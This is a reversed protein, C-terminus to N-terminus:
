PNGPVEGPAPEKAKAMGAHVLVAYYATGLEAMTMPIDAIADATMKPNVKRLAEALTDLMRKGQSRAFADDMTEAARPASDGSIQLAGLEILQGITLRGIGYKMGGLTIQTIEAM